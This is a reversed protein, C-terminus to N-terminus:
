KTACKHHIYAINGVLGFLSLIYWMMYTHIKNLTFFLRSWKIERAIRSFFQHAAAILRRSYLAYVGIYLNKYMCLYLKNHAYMVCVYYLHCASISIVRNQHSRIHAASRTSLKGWVRQMMHMMLRITCCLTINLPKKKVYM